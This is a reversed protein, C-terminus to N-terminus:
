TGIVDSVQRRYRRGVPVRAGGRLLIQWAGHVPRLEEVADINVIASRHVRVFHQRDLRLELAALTERVVHVDAGRHMRVYNDAAEIWDVSEPPVALIRGACRVVIRGLVRRLGPLPERGRAMRGAAVRGRVRDLVRRVAERTVPTPLREARPASRPPVVGRGDRALFVLEPRCASSGHFTGLTRLGPLQADIFLLDPLERDVVALAARASTCEVVAAIGQEEALYRRLRRRALLQDDVIVVRLSPPAEGLYRPQTASM